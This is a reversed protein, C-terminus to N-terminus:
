LLVRKVDLAQRRAQRNGQLQILVLLFPSSLIAGNHHSARASNTLTMLDKDFTMRESLLHSAELLLTQCHRSHSSRIVFSLDIGVMYRQRYM